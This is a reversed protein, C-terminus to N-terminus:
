LDISWDTTTGEKLPVTAKLHVVPKAEVTSPKNYEFGTSKSISYSKLRVENTDSSLRELVRIAYSVDDSEPKVIIDPLWILYGWTRSFLKNYININFYDKLYYSYYYTTISPIDAGNQVPGYMTGSQADYGYFGDPHASTLKAPTSTGYSIYPVTGDDEWTFNVVTGYKELESDGEYSEKNYKSLKDVDNLNLARAKVAGKGGGYAECAENLMNVYDHMTKNGALLDKGLNVYGSADVDMAVILNTRTILLEGSDSAGLIQWNSTDGNKESM